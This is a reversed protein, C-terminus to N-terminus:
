KIRSQSNYNKAIDRRNKQLEALPLSAATAEAAFLRAKPPVRFHPIEDSHLHVVEVLTFDCAFLYLSDLKEVENM